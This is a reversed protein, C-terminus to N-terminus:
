HLDYTWVQGNDRINFVITGPQSIPDNNAYTIAAPVNAWLNARWRPADTVDRKKIDAAEQESNVVVDGSYSGESM